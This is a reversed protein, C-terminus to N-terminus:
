PFDGDEIPLDRYIVIKTFKRNEITFQQIVMKTDSKGNYVMCQPTGWQLWTIDHSGRSHVTAGLRVGVCRPVKEKQEALKKAERISPSVGPIQHM